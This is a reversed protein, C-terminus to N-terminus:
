AMKASFTQFRGESSICLSNMGESFDPQSAESPIGSACNGGAFDPSLSRM